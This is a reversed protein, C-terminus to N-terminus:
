GADLLRKSEETFVKFFMSKHNEFIENRITFLHMKMKSKLLIITWM